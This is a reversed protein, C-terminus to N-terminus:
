KLRRKKRIRESTEAFESIVERELARKEREVDCEDRYKIYTECKTHCDWERNPCERGCVPRIRTMGELGKKWRHM